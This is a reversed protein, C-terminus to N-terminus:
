YIKIFDKQAKKQSIENDFYKLLRSRHLIKDNYKIKGLKLEEETIINKRVVEKYSEEIDNLNIEKLRDSLFEVFINSLDDKQFLDKLLLLLRIKIEENDSLLYRQYILARADINDFRQYIDEAKILSNLDFSFNSYIDFIWKSEM